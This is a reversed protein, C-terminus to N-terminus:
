SCGRFSFLSVGHFFKNGKQKTKQEQRAEAGAARAAADMRARIDQINERISKM